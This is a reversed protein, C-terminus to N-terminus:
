DSRDRWNRRIEDWVQQAVSIAEAQEPLAGVRRLANYYNATAVEVSIRTQPPDVRGVGYLQDATAEALERDAITLDSVASMSEESTVSQYLMEAEAHEKPTMSRSSQRAANVADPSFHNSVFELDKSKSVCHCLILWYKRIIIEHYALLSGIDSWRHGYKAEDSLYKIPVRVIWEQPYFQNYHLGDINSVKVGVQFVGDKALRQNILEAMGDCRTRMTLRMWDTRLNAFEKYFESDVEPQSGHRPRELDSVQSVAQTPNRLTNLINEAREPSITLEDLYPNAMNIAGQSFFDPALHKTDSNKVLLLLANWHDVITVICDTLQSEINIRGSTSPTLSTDPLYVTWEKASFAIEKSQRSEVAVKKRVALRGLEENILSKFIEMRGAESRASALRQELGGVSDRFKTTVQASENDEFSGGAMAPIPKGDVLLVDGEMLALTTGVWRALADTKQKVVPGIATSRTAPLNTTTQDAPKKSPESHASRRVLLITALLAACKQRALPLKRSDGGVRGVAELWENLQKAVNVRPGLWVALRAMCAVALPLGMAPAAAATLVAGLIIEAATTLPNERMHHLSAKALAPLEDWCAISAVFDIVYQWRDHDWSGLEATQPPTSRGRDQASSASSILTCKGPEMPGRQSQGVQQRTDRTTCRLHDQM